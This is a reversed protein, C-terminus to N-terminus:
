NSEVQLPRLSEVEDGSVTADVRQGVEYHRWEAEPLEYVYTEGAQEGTGRLHLRYVERRPGERQKPGLRLEPWRPAKDDGRAVENRVTKWRIVEYRYQTAYVPERRMVPERYTEDRTEYVPKEEVIDEFYGNGLDRKGVVVKKTGVQVRKKRTRTEYHDVVERHSKIEQSQGLLRAGAPLTWGREVVPRQEQVPISREWSVRQVELVAQQPKRLLGGVVALLCCLGLCGLVGLASVAGAKKAPGSAAEPAPQEPPPPPAASAPDDRLERVERSPSDERPASCQACSGADAPNGAGCYGCQWDPGSRARALEEEDTVEPADEPLYFRVDEARPAGCGTCTMDRPTLGQAGCSTCDWRGERITM